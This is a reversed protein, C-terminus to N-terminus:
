SCHVRRRRRRAMVFGALAVAVGYHSPEPIATVAVSAFFGKETSGAWGIGSFYYNTGDTAIAKTEALKLGSLNLGAASLVDELKRMGHEADWIFAVESSTASDFWMGGVFKGDNSISYAESSSGGHTGLDTLVENNWLVAHRSGTTGLLYSHGVIKSADPTIAMAYASGGLSSLYTAGGSQSWRFAGVSDFGVVVSGDANVGNAYSAWPLIQTLTTGKYVFARNGDPSNVGTTNIWGAVTSGDSSVAFAKGVGSSGIMTAVGNHWVVPRRSGSDSEWEGAIVSADASIAYPAVMGSGSPNSLTSLGIGSLYMVAEVDSVGSPGLAWGVTAGNQATAFVEARIGGRDIAVFEAACVFPSASLAGYCVLSKYM